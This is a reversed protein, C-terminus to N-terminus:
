ASKTKETDKVADEKLKSPINWREEDVRCSFPSHIFDELGVLCVKYRRRRGATNNTDRNYLEDSGAKFSNVSNNEHRQGM